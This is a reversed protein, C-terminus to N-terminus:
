VFVRPVRKGLTTMIEYPITEAWGAVDEICINNDGFLIVQDGVNVDNIETVDVM